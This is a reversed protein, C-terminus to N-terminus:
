AVVRCEAFVNEGDRWRTAASSDALAVALASNLEYSQADLGALRLGQCMGAELAPEDAPQAAGVCTAAHCAAPRVPAVMCRGDAARLPCSWNCENMGPCAAQQTNSEASQRIQSIEELTCHTELYDAIALAEPPTVSM